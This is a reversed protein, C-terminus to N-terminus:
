SFLSSLVPILISGRCVYAYSTPANYGVDNYGVDGGAYYEGEVDAYILDHVVVCWLM